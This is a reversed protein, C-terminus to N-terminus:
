KSDVDHIGTLSASPPYSESTMNRIKVPTRQSPVWNHDILTGVLGPSDPEPNVHETKQYKSTSLLKIEPTEARHM